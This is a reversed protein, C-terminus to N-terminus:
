KSSAGIQRQVGHGTPLALWCPAVLQKINFHLKLKYIFNPNKTCYQIYSIKTASPSTVKLRHDKTKM